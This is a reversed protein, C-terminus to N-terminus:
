AQNSSPTQPLSVSVSLLGKEQGHYLVKVNRLIIEMNESWTKKRKSRKMQREAPLVEIGIAITRPPYKGVITAYMGGYEDSLIAELADFLRNEQSRDRALYQLLFPDGLRIEKPIRSPLDLVLDGLKIYGSTDTM